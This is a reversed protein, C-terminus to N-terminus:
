GTAPGLVLIERWAAWGPGSLTEVRVFRIGERPTDPAAVLWAQDQTFGSFQALVEQSGDERRGTARHITDGETLQFVMLTSALAPRTQSLV